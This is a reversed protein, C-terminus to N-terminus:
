SPLLNSHINPRKRGIKQRFVEYIAETLENSIGKTSESTNQQSQIILNDPYLSRETKLGLKIMRLLLSSKIENPKTIKLYLKLGKLGVEQLYKAIESQRIILETASDYAKKIATERAKEWIKDKTQKWKQNMSVKKVQSLSIGYKISIDKLSMKEDQLYTQYAELWNIKTKGM